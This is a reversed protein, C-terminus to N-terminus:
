SKPPTPKKPPTPTREPRALEEKAKELLKVEEPLYTMSQSLKTARAVGEADRASAHIYALYPQRPLFALDAESLKRVIALAEAGKRSQALAFAHGTAYAPNTPTTEYLRRMIDKAANPQTTPNTLLTLLAWDHSYRDVSADSQQLTAMIERMGNTDKKAAFHDFLAQNAWAQDPFSRVITWLTRETETEWRWTAAIRHLLSLTGLNGGASQIALDWTEKRLANRDRASIAQAADVLRLTEKSIPGWAGERLYAAFRDWNELQVAVEVLLPQMAKADRVAAPQTALWREAEAARRQALLWQVFMVADAETKAAAPALEAFVPEFPKKDVLVDLNALQLRDAFTGAPSALVLALWTRAEAYERQSLAFGAFERQIRATQQPNSRAIAELEARAAIRKEQQPHRLLLLAHSVKLGDDNPFQAKLRGYTYDIAPADNTAIAYALAARLAAPKDAFSPPFASLADKAGNLDRFRLCSLVLAAADEVSDPANRVLARRLRMSQPANVSELMEAATRLVETNGPGAKLAVELALQANAADRKEIFGKAQDLARQQKHRRYYDRAPQYGLWAGVSLAALAIIGLRIWWVRKRSVRRSEILLM